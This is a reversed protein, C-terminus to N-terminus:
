IQVSERFFVNVSLVQINESNPFSASTAINIKCLGSGLSMHVMNAHATCYTHVGMYQAALVNYPMYLLSNICVAHELRCMSVCPRDNTTIMSTQSSTVDNSSEM